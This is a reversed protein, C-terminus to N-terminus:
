AVSRALDLFRRAVTTLGSKPWAAAITLSLSPALPRGVIGTATTLAPSGAPLATVGFGATVLMLRVELSRATVVTGIDVGIAQCASTLAHNAAWCHDRSGIILPIDPLHHIDITGEIALPHFAPVALHIEEQWLTESHAHGVITSAPLLVLDLMGNDLMIRHDATFGDNIVVEHQPFSRLTAALRNTATDSTVGLRLPAATGNATHRAVQIARDLAALIHRAEHLFAEGAQTM